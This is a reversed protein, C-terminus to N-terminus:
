IFHKRNKKWWNSTVEDAIEDVESQVAKSKSTTELYKIYDLLRQLGFKNINPKLRILIENNQSREIIM